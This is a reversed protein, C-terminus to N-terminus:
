FQYRADVDKSRDIGDDVFAGPIYDLEGDVEGKNHTDLTDILGYDNAAKFQRTDTYWAYNVLSMVCDDHFGHDAIYTSGVEIFTHLEAITDPDHIKLSASEIM